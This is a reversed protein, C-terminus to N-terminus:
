LKLWWIGLNWGEIGKALVMPLRFKYMSLTLTMSVLMLSNVRLFGSVLRLYQPQVLGLPWVVQVLSEAHLKHIMCCADIYQLGRGKPMTFPFLGGCCPQFMDPQPVPSSTLIFSKSSLTSCSTECFSSIRQGPTEQCWVDLNQCSICEM